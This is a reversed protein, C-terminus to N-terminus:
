VAEDGLLEDADYTNKEIAIAHTYNRPPASHSTPTPSLTAPTVQTNSSFAPSSSFVTSLSRVIGSRLGGAGMRSRMIPENEENPVDTSVIEITDNFELMSANETSRSHLDEVRQVFVAFRADEDLAEYVGVGHTFRMGETQLRVMFDRSVLYKKDISYSYLMKSAITTSLSIVFMIWFLPDNLNGDIAEKLSILATLTVGGIIIVNTLIKFAYASRRYESETKSVVPIYRENIYKLQREPLSLNSILGRFSRKFPPSACDRCLCCCFDICYDM